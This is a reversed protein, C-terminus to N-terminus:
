RVKWEEVRETKRYMRIKQETRRHLDKYASDFDSFYHGWFYNSGDNCEWTVYCEPASDNKGLVFETGCVALSSIIEYGANIRKEMHYNDTM